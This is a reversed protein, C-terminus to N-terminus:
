KAENDRLSCILEIAKDYDGNNINLMILSADFLEFDEALKCALEQLIGHSQLLQM